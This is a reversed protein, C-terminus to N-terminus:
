AAEDILRDIGEADVIARGLLDARRFQDDFRREAPLLGYPAGLADLEYALNYGAGTALYARAAPLSTLPGRAILTARPLRACLGSGLRAPDGIITLPARPGAAVPLPRVLPGVITARRSTVIDDDLWESRDADYPLIHEDFRAALAQYGPYSLPKVFRRIL